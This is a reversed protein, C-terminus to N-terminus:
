MCNYYTTTRRVYLEGKTENTEHRGTRCIKKARKPMEYFDNYYNETGSDYLVKYKTHVIDFWELWLTSKVPGKLLECKEILKIKSM